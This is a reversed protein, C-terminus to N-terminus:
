ADAGETEDTPERAPEETAAAPKAKKSRAKKVAAALATEPTVEPKGLGAIEDRIEGDVEATVEERLAALGFGLESALSDNSEPDDGANYREENVRTCLLATIVFRVKEELSLAEIQGKGAVTAGFAANRLADYDCSVFEDAWKALACMWADSEDPLGNAGDNALHAWLTGPLRANLAEAIRPLRTTEIAEASRRPAQAPGSRKGAASGPKTTVLLGKAQLAAKVRETEAVTIPLEDHKGKVMKADAFDPGLLASLKKRSGTLDEAPKDLNRHDRALLSYDDTRGAGFLKEAAKGTIVTIGKAKADALRQDALAAVKAGHCEGDLCLDDAGEGFLDPNAGSRKTCTTCAGAAPLLDPDTIQFPAAAIRLGFNQRLYQLGQRHSFPEGGWGQLMPALAREQESTAYRAMAEALKLQLRGDSLAERAAPVLELLKLRGYVFNPKHGVKEALQEVTYGRLRPPSFEGGGPRRILLNEFAEAQELPELDARKDNEILAIEAAAFDDLHRVFAPIRHGPMKAGGPQAAIEASIRTCARWRREGAVIEFQPEGARPAEVPRVVIPQQVGHARISDTLEVLKAEDFRKRPQYKGPKILALPIERAVYTREETHDTM